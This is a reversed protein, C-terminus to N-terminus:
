NIFYVTYLVNILISLIFSNLLINITRDKEKCSDALFKIAQNEYYEPTEDM